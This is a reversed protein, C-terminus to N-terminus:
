GRQPGVRGQGGTRGATRHALKAIFRSFIRPFADPFSRQCILPAPAQVAKDTTLHGPPQVGTLRPTARIGFPSHKLPRLCPFKCRIAFSKSLGVVLALLIMAVIADIRASSIRSERPLGVTLTSKANSSPVTDDDDTGDPAEVPSCSAISLRPFGVGRASRLSSPNLKSRRKRRALNVGTKLWQSADGTKATRGFRHRLIYDNYAPGPM